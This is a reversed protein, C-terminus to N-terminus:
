KIALMNKIVFEKVKDEDNFDLGFVNQIYAQYKNISAFFWGFNHTVSLLRDKEFSDNGNMGNWNFFVILLAAIQFETFSDIITKLSKGFRGIPLQPYFGYTHRFLDTYISLVRKIYTDGRTSPLQGPKIEIDKKM